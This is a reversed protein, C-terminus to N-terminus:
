ANQNKSFMEKGYFLTRLKDLGLDNENFSFGYNNLENLLLKRQEDEFYEYYDPTDYYVLLGIDKIDQLQIMSKMGEKRFQFDMKITDFVKQYGSNILELEKEKQKSKDTEEKNIEDCYRIRVCANKM